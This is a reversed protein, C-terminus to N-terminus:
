NPTGIGTIMRIARRHLHDMSAMLLGAVGPLRAVAGCADATPQPAIPAPATAVMAVFITRNVRPAPIPSVTADGQAPSPADALAIAADPTAQITTTWHSDAAM